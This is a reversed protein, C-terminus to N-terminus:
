NIDISAAYYCAQSGGFGLDNIYNKRIEIIDKKQIKNNQWDILNIANDLFDLEGAGYISSHSSLIQETLTTGSRPM